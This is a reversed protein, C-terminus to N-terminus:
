FLYLDINPCIGRSLTNLITWDDHAIPIEHRIIETAKSLIFLHKFCKKLNNRIKIIYYIVEKGGEWKQKGFRGM